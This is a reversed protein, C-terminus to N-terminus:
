SATPSASDDARRTFGAPGVAPTSDIDAGPNLAALLALNQTLLFEVAAHNNAEETQKKQHLEDHYSPGIEFAEATESLPGANYMGLLKVGTEPPPPVVPPQPPPLVAEHRRSRAWMALGVAVGLAGVGFGFLREM